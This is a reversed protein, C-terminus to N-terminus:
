SATPQRGPQVEPPAARAYYMVFQKEPPLNYASTYPGELTFHAALLRLAEADGTPMFFASDVDRPLKALTAADLQDPTYGYGELDARFFQLMSRGYTRDYVGRGIFYVQTGPPFNRARYVADEIDPGERTYPFSASFDPLMLGFYGGVSLLALGFVLGAMWSRRLRLLHGAELAGLALLLALAPFVVVYRPSGDSIVLLSNGLAAGGLWVLLLLSGAGPLTRLARWVGLLLFPILPAIVLPLRYFPSSDARGAYMQFAALLHQNLYDGLMGQGAPMLWVQRWYDGPLGSANMRMALPINGFVLLYYVPASVLAAALGAALLGRGTPRDARRFGCLLLWLAAAPIFLLRGAEFFYQTCGLFVGGLAYDSTRRGRLGRALFALALTGFLPDAIQNIALRSYQLHPPFVALLLAALLGTRWDFLAEALLYLAPIGLAGVVASVARLSAVESGFASVSAFQWVSYVWTYPAITTNLPRVIGITKHPNRLDLIPFIFQLEDILNRPLDGLHWLRLALGGLTILALAALVRGRPSRLFAPLSVRRFAIRPGGALALTVLAIGGGLLAFQGGPRISWEWPFAFKHSSVEAVLWLLAAGLLLAGTRWRM